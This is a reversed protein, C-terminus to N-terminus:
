ERDDSLIAAPFRYRDAGVSVDIRSDRQEVEAPEAGDATAMGRGDSSVDFRRFGGDPHRVTLVLAGDERTREVQCEAAFVNSGGLACEITAEPDSAAAGDARPSCAVLLLGAASSIRM